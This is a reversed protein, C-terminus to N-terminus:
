STAASPSGSAPTLDGEIAGGVDTLLRELEARTRAAYAAQLREELEEVDLRGDDDVVAFDPV